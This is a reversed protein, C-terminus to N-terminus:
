VRAGCARCYRDSAAVRGACKTCYSRPSLASRAPEAPVTLPGSAEPSVGDHLIRFRTSAILLFLNEGIMALVLLVFVIVLAAKVAWGFSVSPSGFGSGLCGGNYVATNVADKAQEEAEHAGVLLFVLAAAGIVAVAWREAQRMMILAALGLLILLGGLGLLTLTWRGGGRVMESADCLNSEDFTPRASAWPGTVVSCLCIGLVLVCCGSFKARWGRYRESSCDIVRTM